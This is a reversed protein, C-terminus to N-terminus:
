KMNTAASLHYDASIAAARNYAYVARWKTSKQELNIYKHDFNYARIMSILKCLFAFAAALHQMYQVASCTCLLKKKM